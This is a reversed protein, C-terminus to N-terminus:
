TCSKEDYAGGTGLAAVIRLNKESNSCNPLADIDPEIPPGPGHRCGTQVGAPGPTVTVRGSWAEFGRIV